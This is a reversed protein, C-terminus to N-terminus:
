GKWRARELLQKHLEEARARAAKKKDDAEIAAAEAQECAIDALAAADLAKAYEVALTEGAPLPPLAPVAPAPRPPAPPPPPAAEAQAQAVTEAMKGRSRWMPPPPVSKERLEPFAAVLALYAKPLMANGLEWRSLNGQPLGLEDCATKQDWGRRIRAQRLAEGFTAPVKANVAALATAAAAAPEPPKPAPPAPPQPPPPVPKATAEIVPRHAREQAVEVMTATNVVLRPLYEKFSTLQPLSGYLRPLQRGSPGGQGSEWRIIEAETVGVREALERTSLRRKERCFRLAVCWKRILGTALVAEAKNKHPMGNPALPHDFVRIM